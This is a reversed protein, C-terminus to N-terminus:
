CKTIWSSLQGIACRACSRAYTPIVTPLNRVREGDTRRNHNHQAINLVFVKSCTIRGLRLTGSLYLIVCNTGEIWGQSLSASCQNMTGFFCRVPLHCDIPHQKSNQRDPWAEVFLLALRRLPTDFPPPTPLGVSPRGHLRTHLRSLEVDAFDVRGLGQRSGEPTSSNFASTAAAPLGSFAM